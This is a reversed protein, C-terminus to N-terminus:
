NEGSGNGKAAILGSDKLMELTRSMRAQVHPTGNAEREMMIPVFTNLDNTTMRGLFVANAIHAAANSEVYQDANTLARCLAPVAEHGMGSLALTVESGRAPLLAELEPIVAVALDGLALLGWCGRHGRRNADPFRWRVIRIKELVQNGRWYVTSSRAKVDAVLWPIANTGIERVAKIAKEDPPMDKNIQECWWSLPKGQYRPEPKSTFRAVVFVGAVLVSLAGITLRTRGRGKQITQNDSNM